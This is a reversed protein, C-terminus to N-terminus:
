QNIKLDRLSYPIPRIASYKCYGYPMIEFDIDWYNLVKSCLLYEHEKTFDIDHESLKYIMCLRLSKAQQASLYSQRSKLFNSILTELKEISSLSFRNQSTFLNKLSEFDGSSLFRDSISKTIEIVKNKKELIISEKKECIYNKFNNVDYGKEKAEHCWSCLVDNHLSYFDSCWICRAM